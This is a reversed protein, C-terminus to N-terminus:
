DTSSPASRKLPADTDPSSDFVAGGNYSMLLREEKNGVIIRHTMFFDAGLLMDVSRLKVDGIPIEINAIQENDGIKFTKVRVVHTKVPDWGSRKTYGIDLVDPSDLKIGIREAAERTLISRSM